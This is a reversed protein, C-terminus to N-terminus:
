PRDLRERRPHRQGRHRNASCREVIWGDGLVIGSEGHRAHFDSLRGSPTRLGNIAIDWGLVTGGLIRVNSVAGNTKIRNRGGATATLTRGGLDLVVDDSEITIGDGPTALVLNRAM